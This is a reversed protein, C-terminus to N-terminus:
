KGAKCIPKLGTKKEILESIEGHKDGILDAKSIAILETKTKLNKGYKKLENHVTFYNEVINDDSCDLIHLLVMCREIHALFRDGIGKGEHAGKILGPIDAIVLEQDFKKVVGLVPHLTTFPYNAIKPEAASIKSLFTSKGM